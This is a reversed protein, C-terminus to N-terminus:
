SSVDRKAFVLWAVLLCVVYYAALVSLSFAATVGSIAQYSKDLYGALNLHVFITYKIWPKDVAMLIYYIVNSSFIVFLSIGMSLIGSRFVASIMFAITILVLMVIFEAGYTLLIYHLPTYVKTMATSLQNTSEYGFAVTSTVFSSIFLLVTLVLGYLCVAIYKSALIATRSWPRILLLKITGTSFESAVSEAAVIVSFITIFVIMVSKQQMMIDWHSIDMGNVDINFLFTLGITMAVVLAMMIWTRPRLYIKMNENAVLQLFNYM